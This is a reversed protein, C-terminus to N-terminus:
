SIDVRQCQVTIGDQDRLANLVIRIKVRSSHNKCNARRNDTVIKEGPCKTARRM